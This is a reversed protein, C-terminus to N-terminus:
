WTLEELSFTRPDIKIDLEVLDLKLTTRSKGKLADSMVIETPMVKGAVLTVATIEQTKLLRKNQSFEQIKRVSGDKEYVWLKVVPYPIGGKKAQLEVITCDLDGSRFLM